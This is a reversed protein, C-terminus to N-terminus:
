EGLEEALAAYARVLETYAGSIEGKTLRALQAETYERVKPAKASKKGANTPKDGKLLNQVLAYAAKDEKLKEARIGFYGKHWIGNEDKFANYYSFKLNYAIVKVTAYDSRDWGSIRFTSVKKGNSDTITVKSTNFEVSNLLKAFADGNVNYKKM